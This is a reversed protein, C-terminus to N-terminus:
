VKDKYKKLVDLANNLDEGTTLIDMMGLKKEHRYNGAPSIINELASYLEQAMGSTERKKGTLWEKQDKIYGCLELCEAARSISTKGIGECDFLESPGAKVVVNPATNLLRRLTCNRVRSSCERINTNKRNKQTNKTMLALSMMEKTSTHKQINLIENFLTSSEKYRNFQKKCCYRIRAAISDQMEITRKSKITNKDTDILFFNFKNENSKLFLDVASEGVESSVIFPADIFWNKELYSLILFVINNKQYVGLNILGHKWILIETWRENLTRDWCIVDFSTGNINAFIGDNKGNPNKIPFAGGVELKMLDSM